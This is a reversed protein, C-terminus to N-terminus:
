IRDRISARAIMALFLFAPIGLSLAQVSSILGTVALLIAGLIALISATSLITANPVSEASSALGAKPSGVRAEPAWDLIDQVRQSGRSVVFEFHADEFEVLVRAGRRLRLYTSWASGDTIDTVVTVPKLFVHPESGVPKFELGDDRLVVHGTVYM